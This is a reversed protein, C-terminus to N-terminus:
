LDSHAKLLKYLTKLWAGCERFPNTWPYTRLSFYGDVLKGFGIAWIFWVRPIHYWASVAIIKCDDCDGAGVAQKIAEYAAETEYVTSWGRPNVIIRDEPWGKIITLYNVMAESFRLDTERSPSGTGIVIMGAKERAVKIAADCRGRADPCLMGNVLRSAYVVVFTRV